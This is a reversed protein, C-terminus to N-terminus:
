ALAQNYIHVPPHQYTCWIEIFEFNAYNITSDTFYTLKM